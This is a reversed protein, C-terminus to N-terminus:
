DVPFEEDFVPPHSFHPPHQRSALFFIAAALLCTAAGALFAATYGGTLDALVGGVWPGILGGFGYSLYLIGYIAGAARLGFLDTAIPGYLTLWTGYVFGILGALIFIAVPTHLRALLLLVVVESLTAGILVPFRGIRDSWSGMFFRGLASGVAFASLLLPAQLATMGQLRGYTVLHTSLLLGVSTVLTYALFITLFLPTRVAQGLTVGPVGTQPHLVNAPRAPARIGLGLLPLAILALVGFRLFIGAWGLVALFHEALPAWIFLGLGFAGVVVGSAFGRREPFSQMVATVAAVYAFGFGIGGLLGYRLVLVSPTQAAGAWLVGLGFLVGGVVAILTARVRDQLIGGIGMGVAYTFLLVAHPFAAAARSTDFAIVIAPLLVGYAYISGLLFMALAAAVLTMWRM